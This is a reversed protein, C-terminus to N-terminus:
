VGNMRMLFELVFYFSELELGEVEVVVCYCGSLFMGVLLGFM